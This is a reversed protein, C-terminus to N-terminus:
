VARACCWVEINKAGHEVLLESLAQVTQGTTVVDDLIAVHQFPNAKKMKFAGSINSRRAQASLQSQPSTNKKRYCSNYILPIGLTKSVPRAIEVAQNFGRQCIRKTHLPVPIICEPRHNSRKQIFDALLQGLIRGCVLNQSFKLKIIMSSIPEQYLFPSICRQFLPPNTLCPGCQGNAPLPLACVSCVTRNWPLNKQCSACLGLGAPFPKACLYCKLPFITSFIKM